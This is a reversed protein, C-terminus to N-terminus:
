DFLSIGWITIAQEAPNLTVVLDDPSIGDAVTGSNQFGRYFVPDIYTAPQRNYYNLFPDIIESIRDFSFWNDEDFRFWWSAFQTLATLSEVRDTFTKHLLAGALSGIVFNDSRQRAIDNISRAVFDQLLSPTQELRNFEEPDFTYRWYDVVWNEGLVERFLEQRFLEETPFWLFDVIDLIKDEGIAKVALVEDLNNFQRAPLGARAELLNEAGQLGISYSALEAPDLDPRYQGIETIDNASQARNLFDLVTQAQVPLLEAFGPRELPIHNIPAVVPVPWPMPEQPEQETAQLYKALFADRGGRARETGIQGYTYGAAYIIGQYDVALAQVGEDAPTGFQHLWLKTGQPSYKALFADGGGTSQDAGLQGQTYGGVYVNEENDVDLASIGEFDTTGLQRLWLQEGQANYKGVFADDQTDQPEPGTRKIITGGVYLNGQRTCAIAHLTDSEEFGIQQSWLQKGAASFKVIIGDARVADAERDFDGESYGALYVDGQLDVCLADVYAIAAGRLQRLWLQNGEPDYKAVFGEIRGAQQAGGVLNGNTSGCVLLNGLQDTALAKIGESSTTGFQKRWILDGLTSYKLIFADTQGRNVEKGLQRDTFGAAYVARRSDALVASIQDFGETGIQKLWLQEGEAGYRALFGDTQGASQKEPLQGRTYGGVFIFASSELSLSLIDDDATSGIQRTWQPILSAM